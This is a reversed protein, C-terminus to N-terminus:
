ADAAKGINRQKQQLLEQGRECTAMGDQVLIRVQGNIRDQHLAKLDENSRGDHESKWRKWRNTREVRFPGSM